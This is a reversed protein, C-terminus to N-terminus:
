KKMISLIGERDSKTRRDYNPSGARFWRLQSDTALVLYSNHSWHTLPYGIHYWVTILFQYSQM